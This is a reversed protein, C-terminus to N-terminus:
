FRLTAGAYLGQVDDKAGDARSIDSYLQYEARILFHDTVDFKVGAGFYPKVKNEDKVPVGQVTGSNDTNYRAAGVRGFVGFRDGIPLTGVASLTWANAKQSANFNDDHSKFLTGFSTYGLEAAWNQDFQYGINGRVSTDAHDCNSVNHCYKHADSQGADIGILFGSKDGKAAEDALVIHSDIAAILAVSSVILKVKNTLM